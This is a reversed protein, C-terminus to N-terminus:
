SEDEGIANLLDELDDFQAVQDIFSKLTPHQTRLERLWPGIPDVSAPNNAYTGHFAFFAQNLKRLYIGREALKQREQEMYREAEEVKEEALFDDVQLRIRRMAESYSEQKPSQTETDSSEASSQNTKIRPKPLMDPYYRQLVAQSVEAGFISAVTENITRMQPNTNYNIGLPYFVMYNHNWEHAIIDIVSSMSVPDSIMTPWSGIGGVNDVLASVGLASEIQTELASRDGAPMDPLLYLSRYQSIKDRESIILYTPMDNFRFTLPPWLAGNRGFGEAILVQSVQDALIREAQTTVAQQTQYEAKLTNELAVLARSPEDPSNTTRAYEAQVQHELTRIVQQRRVFDRIESEPILDSVPAPRGQLWWIIESSIANSQWQWWNFRVGRTLVGLQLDIQFEPALAEGRVGLILIALLLFRGLLFGKKLIQRPSISLIKDKM